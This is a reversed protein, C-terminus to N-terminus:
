SPVEHSHVRDLTIHSALWLAPNCLSPCISPVREVRLRCNKSTSHRDSSKSSCTRTSFFLHHWTRTTCASGRLADIRRKKKVHRVAAFEHPKAVNHLYFPMQNRIDKLTQDRPTALPLLLSREAMSDPAVVDCHRKGHPSPLSPYGRSVGGMFKELFEPFLAPCPCCPVGTTGTFGQGPGDVQEFRARAQHRPGRTQSARWRLITLLRHGSACRPKALYRWRASKQFRPRSWAVRAVVETQRRTSEWYPFLPDLDSGHTQTHLHTPASHSGFTTKGFSRLADKTVGPGIQPARSWLSDFSPTPTFCLVLGSRQTLGPQASSRLVNEPLLTQLM